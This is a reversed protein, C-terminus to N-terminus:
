SFNKQITLLNVSVEKETDYSLLELLREALLVRYENVFLEKSGYINVFLSTVDTM